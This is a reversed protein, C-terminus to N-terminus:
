SRGGRRMEAEKLVILHEYFSILLVYSLGARGDLFGLKWVYMWLFKAVPRFPLRYYFEKQHIRREGIDRSFLAKRLSPHAVGGAADHRMRAEFSSYANHREVWQSIGKSFPQHDLYGGKLDAVPGDPISIAHVLREFRMHKYMFLRQYWATAQVRRLWTGMFFDRRCIRFSVVGKPDSVAKRVAEALEPTVREDADINLVWPYRFPVNALAWNQHAGYNDFPRVTVTAGSKAAIDRTADTSCSDLVHVDDCWSVSALCEPLNNEEDKTLILVSIPFNM